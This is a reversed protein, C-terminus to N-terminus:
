KEVLKYANSCACTTWIQIIWMFANFVWNICLYTWVFGSFDCFNVCCEHQEIKVCSIFKLAILPLPYRKTGLPQVNGVSFWWAQQSFSRNTLLIYGFKGWIPCFNLWTMNIGSWSLMGLKMFKLHIKSKSSNLFWADWHKASLWCHGLTQIENGDRAHSRSIWGLVCMHNKLWSQHM